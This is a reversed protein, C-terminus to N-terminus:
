KEKTKSRSKKDRQVRDVDLSLAELTAIDARLRRVEAQRRMSRYREATSPAATRNGELARAEALARLHLIVDRFFKVRRTKEILPFAVFVTRLASDLDTPPRSVLETGESQLVKRGAQTLTYERRGRPAEDGIKILSAKTLRNLLPLTTGLSLGAQSSLSYGTAVGREILTLVLLETDSRV